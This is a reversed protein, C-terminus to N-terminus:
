VTAELYPRIVTGVRLAKALSWIEDVTARRERLSAQLAELAIDLGVKNRFRFCDVVTKPVSYVRIVGDPSKREEVQETLALGSFRVFHLPLHSPRPLRRKPHIAMWVESPNQTGLQHLRLASLLCIVGHPVLACAEALSSNESPEQDPLRYLGRGVRVLRGQGHLQTLLSHPFQRQTLDRPRIIGQRAALEIVEQTRSSNM